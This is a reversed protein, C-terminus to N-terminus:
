YIPEHARNVSKLGGFISSVIPYYFIYVFEGIYLTNDTVVYKNHNVRAFPIASQEETFAPVM